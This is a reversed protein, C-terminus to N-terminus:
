KPPKPQSQSKTVIVKGQVPTTSACAKITYTFTGLTDGLACLGSQNTKYKPTIGDSQVCPTTPAFTIDFNPSTNPAVWKIGPDTHLDVISPNDYPVSPAQPTGTCVIPIDNKRAARVFPVLPMASVDGSVCGKCPTVSGASNIPHTGDTASFPVDTLDTIDVNSVVTGPKDARCVKDQGAGLPAKGCSSVGLLDFTYLVKNQPRQDQLRFTVIDGKVVSFGLRGYDDMTLTVNAPKPKPPQTLRWGLVSVVIVLAFIVLWLLNNRKM